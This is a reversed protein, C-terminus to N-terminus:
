GMLESLPLLARSDPALYPAGWLLSLLSLGCLRARISLSPPRVVDGLCLGHSYELFIGVGM